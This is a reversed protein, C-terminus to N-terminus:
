DSKKNRKDNGDGGKLISLSVKSCESYGDRSGIAYALDILIAMEKKINSITTM